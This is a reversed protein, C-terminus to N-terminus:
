SIDWGEMGYGNPHTVLFVSSPCVCDCPTASEAEEPSLKWDNGGVGGTKWLDETVM